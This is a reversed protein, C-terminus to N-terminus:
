PLAQEGGPLLLPLLYRGFPLTRGAFFFDLTNRSKKERFVVLLLVAFYLILLILSFIKLM